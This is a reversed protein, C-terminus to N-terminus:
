DTQELSNLREEYELILGPDADNRHKRLFAQLAGRYEKIFAQNTPSVAYQGAAKEVPARDREIKGRKGYNSEDCMIVINREFGPIYKVIFPDNEPPILIENRIPYIAVSTTSFQLVVDRGDATKLVADYDWIYSENLMVDTEQKHVIVATALTGFANLFLANAFPAIFYSVLSLLFFPLVLGCWLVQRRWIALLTGVGLGIGTLALTTLGPHHNIFYIIASLIVM